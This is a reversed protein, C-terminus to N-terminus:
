GAELYSEDPRATTIPDAHRHVLRWRAEERRLISTVRLRVDTPHDSGRVKVRYSEGEVLCALDDSAHMAHMEFGLVEGESYFSAASEMRASAQEWGRVVGGFPNALTVDDARSLLAKLPKADGLVFEALAAHHREIFEDLGDPV